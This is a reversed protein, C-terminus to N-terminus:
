QILKELDKPLDTEEDVDKLTPLLHYKLNKSKLDLLTDLFVDPSSWKKNVFLESVIERMGLLYYGGDEAPGLVVDHDRLAEFAERLVDESLEWCDSGIIVVRKYGQGFSREFAKKMKEGLDKGKQVFHPFDYHELGPVTKVKGAMFLARDAPAVNAIEFTHELLKRYIRVANKEGITRALRTKVKGEEPYKAFIMLMSDNM